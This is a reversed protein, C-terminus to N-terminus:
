KVEECNAGVERKAEAVALTLWGRLGPPFAFDYSPTAGWGGFSTSVIVVVYGAAASREALWRAEPSADTMSGAAELM